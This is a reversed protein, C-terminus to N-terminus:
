SGLPGAESVCDVEESGSGAFPDLLSVFAFGEAGSFSGVCSDFGLGAGLSAGGVFGFDWCDFAGSESGFCLSTADKPFRSSRFTKIM